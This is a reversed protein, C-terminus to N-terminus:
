ECKILWLDYDADQLPNEGPESATMWNSFIKADSPKKWVQVFAFYDLAAYPESQKCTPVAIKLKDFEIGREGVPVNVTHARGAAKTMIRMQATGRDIYQTGGVAAAVNATMMFLAAFIYKIGQMEALIYYLYTANALSFLSGVFLYINLYSFSYNGIIIWRRPDRKPTSNLYWYGFDPGLHVHELPINRSIRLHVEM